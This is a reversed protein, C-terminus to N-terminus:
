MMEIWEGHTMPKDVALALWTFRALYMAAAVGMGAGAMVQKSCHQQVANMSKKLPPLHLFPPEPDVQYDRPHRAYACNM